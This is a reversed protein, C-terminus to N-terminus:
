RGCHTKSTSSIVSVVHCCYESCHSVSVPQEINCETLHSLKEVNVLEPSSSQMIDDANHALTNAAAPPSAPAAQVPHVVATVISGLSASSVTVYGLESAVSCLGPRYVCVCEM